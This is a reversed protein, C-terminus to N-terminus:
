AQKGEVVDVLRAARPGIEAWSADIDLVAASATPMGRSVRQLAQKLSGEGSLLAAVHSTTPEHGVVLVTGADRVGALVAIYRESGCEYLEDEIHLDVDEWVTAMRKFTQVTRNASSVLAVDPHLGMATLREALRAADERGVLTLARSHDDLGAQPLEAKAHRALILRPV